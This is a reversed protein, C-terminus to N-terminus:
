KPDGYYNVSELILDKHISLLASMNLGELDTWESVYDTQDETGHTGDLVTGDKLWPASMLENDLNLWFVRGFHMSHVMHRRNNM